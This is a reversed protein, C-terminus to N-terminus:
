MYHSDQDRAPVLHFKLLREIYPVATLRCRTARQIRDAELLRMRESGFNYGEDPRAMAFGRKYDGKYKQGVKIAIYQYITDIQGATNPM